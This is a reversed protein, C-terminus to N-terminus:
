PRRSAKWVTRATARWTRIFGIGGWVSAGCSLATSKGTSSDDVLHFGGGTRHVKALLPGALAAAVALTLMPNGICPAAIERRWGDLDGGAVFEDHQAHQESACTARAVIRNPLIFVEGKDHWGTATAALVRRKPYRSMLYSNLLRHSAPDIRVGLALLEGRLEEGSGKLLDMPMAWDRWRGAANRFRLLLGHETDRESATMADAHLPSCIWTDIEKEDKIGHWYLGAPGFATKHEHVAYGPRTVAPKKPATGKTGESNESPSGPNEKDNM